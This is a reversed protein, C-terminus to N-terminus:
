TVATASFVRRGASWASGGLRCASVSWWRDTANWRVRVAFVEAAVQAYFINAYGNNLLVGEIGDAQAKIMGALHYFFISVDEFVHGEMLEARIQADTAKEILTFTALQMNPASEIPKAQLAIRTRFDDWVYVGSGARFFQEPDIREQGVLVIEVRKECRLRLAQGPKEDQFARALVKAVDMPADIWWQMQKSTMEPMNQGVVALFQATQRHYSTM